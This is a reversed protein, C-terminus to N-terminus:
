KNKEEALFSLEPIEGRGGCTPCTAQEPIPCNPNCRVDDCNPHHAQELVWGDGGCTPCKM